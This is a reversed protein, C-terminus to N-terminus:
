WPSAAPRKTWYDISLEVGFGEPIQIEKVVRKEGTEVPQGDVMKVVPQKVQMTMSVPDFMFESIEVCGDMQQVIPGTANCFGTMEYFFVLRRFLKEISEADAQMIDKAEATIEDLSDMLEGVNEDDPVAMYLDQLAKTVPMTDAAVTLVLRFTKQTNDIYNEVNQILWALVEAAVAKPDIKKMGARVEEASLKPVDSVQEAVTPNAVMDVATPKVELKEDASM